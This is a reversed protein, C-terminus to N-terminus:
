RCLFVAHDTDTMECIM